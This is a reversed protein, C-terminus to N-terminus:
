LEDHDPEEDEDDRYRWLDKRRLVTDRAYMAAGHAAVLAPDIDDLYRVDRNGVANHVIERIETFASSSAEGATVIARIDERRGPMHAMTLADEVFRNFFDSLKSNYEEM